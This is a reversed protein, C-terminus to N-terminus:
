VDGRDAEKLVWIFRQESQELGIAIERIQEDSISTMTGFAVYIVSNPPQKDLWDLCKHRSFSSSGGDFEVPNLPGIAWQKRNEQYAEQGLLDIFKSEMPSCTNFLEGVDFEMLDLQRNIFDAFTDTFCGDFSLHTFEENLSEIGTNTPRGLGEWRFFLACLASCTNLFYAEGNPLSSAVKAAFLMLSDHIVVVRRSTTSLSHLLAALPECFNLAADFAPQLQAPFKNSAFPDPPPANFSLPFDHFHINSASSLNWGHVRNKAQRNHTASGVYHVPIGHASVLRSLHLLQNLHGQAPLPVVVVAVPAKDM